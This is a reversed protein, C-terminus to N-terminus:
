QRSKLALWVTGAVGAAFILVAILEAQTFSLGLADYRENIRIKEILFRETGNFILYIFFLMAPVRVRKRLAWLIGGIGFAMAAEYVSTPFVPEALKRCYRGDCVEMAVGSNIINRPYDMSWLWDPLFWWGPQAGAAIGWDGDGSFHCGLRGVGYAVILAPAVADMVHAVPIQKKRLYVWVAVFGVILGGYITLGAGSFLTGAPDNFFQQPAELISFIKAGVVGSVAAIITIEGIRDHPFVEASRTVSKSNRRSFWMYAPYAAAGVAGAWWVGKLSFLEGAADQQFDSFHMAIYPLKFGTVFGWIIASIYDSTKAPGGETLTETHPLLLGERSKRRLEVQLIVAASLVALVLFLGYTKFVSLWNDAQAGILDHFVYSLDPYM